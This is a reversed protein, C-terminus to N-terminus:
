REKREGREISAAIEDRKAVDLLTMHAMTAYWYAACVDCLLRPDYAYFPRGAWGRKSEAATLPRLEERRICSMPRPRDKPDKHVDRCPFAAGQLVVSAAGIQAVVNRITASADCAKLAEAAQENPSKGNAYSCVTVIVHSGCDFCYGHLGDFRGPHLGVHGCANPDNM